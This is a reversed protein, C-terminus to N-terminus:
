QVVEDHSHSTTEPHSHERAHGYVHLETDGGHTHTYSEEPPADCSDEHPCEDVLHDDIENHADAVSSTLSGVQTTLEDIQNQLGSVTTAVDGGLGRNYEKHYTKISVTGGYRIRSKRINSNAWYEPPSDMDILKPIDYYDVTGGSTNMGKYNTVIKSTTVCKTMVRLVLNNYLAGSQDIEFSPAWGGGLINNDLASTVRRCTSRLYNCKIDKKVYHVKPDKDALNIGKVYRSTRFLTEYQKGTVNRIDNCLIKITDAGPIGGNPGTNSWMGPQTPESSISRLLSVTVIQDSISASCFSLNVSVQGIIHNPITYKLVAPFKGSQYPTATEPLKTQKMMIPNQELATNTGNIQWFPNANDVTADGKASLEFNGIKGDPSTPDWSLCNAGLNMLFGTSTKSDVSMNTFRRNTYGINGNSDLNVDSLYYTQYVSKNYERKQKSLMKRPPKNVVMTGRPKFNGRLPKKVKNIENKGAIMNKGAYTNGVFGNTSKAKRQNFTTKPRQFREKKVGQKQVRAWNRLGKIARGYLDNNRVYTYAQHAQRGLRIAQQANFANRRQYRQLPGYYPM